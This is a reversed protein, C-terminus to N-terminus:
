AFSARADPSQSSRQPHPALDGQYRSLLSEDTIGLQLLIVPLVQQSLAMHGEVDGRLKAVEMHYCLQFLRHDEPFEPLLKTRYHQIRDHLSLELKSDLFEVSRCFRQLTSLLAREAIKGDKQGDNMGLGGTFWKESVVMVTQAGIRSNGGESIYPGDISRRRMDSETKQIPAIIDVHGPVRSLLAEGSACTDMIDDLYFIDPSRIGRSTQVSVVGGTGNKKDIVFVIRELFSPLNDPDHDKYHKIVTWLPLIAGNLPIIIDRTLDGEFIAHAHYAFKELLSQVNELGPVPKYVLESNHYEPFASM